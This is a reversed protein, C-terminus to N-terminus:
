ERARGSRSALVSRRLGHAGANLAVCSPCTQWGRTRFTTRLIDHRMAVWQIAAELAGIDLPGSLKYARGKVFDKANKPRITSTPGSRNKPLFLASM